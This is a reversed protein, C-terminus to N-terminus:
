FHTFILTFVLLPFIENKKKKKYKLINQNWLSDLFKQALLQTKPGEFNIM